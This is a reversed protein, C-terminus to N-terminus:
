TGVKRLRAEIRPKQGEFTGYTFWDGIETIPAVRVGFRRKADDMVTQDTLDREIFDISNRVLWAKLTRCDPCTPTSYVIVTNTM